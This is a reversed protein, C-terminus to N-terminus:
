DTRSIHDIIMPISGGYYFGSLSVKKGIRSLVPLSVPVAQLIERASGGATVKPASWAWPSPLVLWLVCLFAAVSRNM